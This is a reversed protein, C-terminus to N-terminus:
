LINVLVGPRWGGSPWYRRGTTVGLFMQLCQWTNLPPLIVVPSHNSGRYQLTILSLM